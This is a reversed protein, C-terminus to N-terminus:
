SRSKRTVVDMWVRVSCVGAAPEVPTLSRHMLGGLFYGVMGVWRSSCGSRAQCRLVHRAHIARMLLFGLFSAPEFLASATVGVFLWTWVLAPMWGDRMGKM